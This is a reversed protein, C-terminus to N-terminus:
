RKQSHNQPGFPRMIRQRTKAVRREHEKQQQLAQSGLIFNKLHQDCQKKEFDTAIKHGIFYGAASGVCLSLCSAIILHKKTM